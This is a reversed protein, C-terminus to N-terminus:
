LVFRSSIELVVNDYSAVDPERRVGCPNWEFRTERFTSAFLYSLKRQQFISCHSDGLLCVSRDILAADNRFEQWTEGLPEAFTETGATQVVKGVLVDPQLFLSQEPKGDEFKAALDCFNPLARLRFENKISEWSLGLAKVVFGFVTVYIRGPLHSDRYEFDALTQFMAINRFPQCFVLEIDLLSLRVRLEDVAAEFRCFRAEQLLFRSIIHDKELMLVVVVRADPNKQRIGSVLVEFSRLKSALQETSFYPKWAWQNTGEFIVPSKGYMVASLDKALMTAPAFTANDDAEVFAPWTSIYYALAAQDYKSINLGAHFDRLQKVTKLSFFCRFLSSDQDSNM